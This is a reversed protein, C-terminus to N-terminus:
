RRRRRRVPKPRITAEPRTYTRRSVYRARALQREYAALIPPFRLFRVWLFVGVMILETVILFLFDFVFLAYTLILLFSIVGTWLLWEYLELYPPHHRLQRTRVNYLVVLLVLLVLSAVVTPWFLDPFNVSNFADFLYEWPKRTVRRDAGSPQSPTPQRGLICSGRAISPGGVLSAPMAARGISLRARM